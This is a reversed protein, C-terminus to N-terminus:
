TAELDYLIVTDTGGFDPYGALTSIIASTNSPFHLTISKAYVCIENLCNTGFVTSSDIADFYIHVGNCNCVLYDFCEEDLVKLKKFRLSTINAGIFAGGFGYPGIAELSDFVIDRHGDLFTAGNFANAWTSNGTEDGIKKLKSFDIAINKRQIKLYNVTWFYGVIEEVNNFDLCFPVYQDTEETRDIINSTIIIKNVDDLKTISDPIKLTYFETPKAGGALIAPCVKQSGLYLTGAM